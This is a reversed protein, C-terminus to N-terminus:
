GTVRELAERIQKIAETCEKSGDHRRGLERLSTTLADHQIEIVKASGALAGAVMAEVNLMEQSIEETLEMWWSM